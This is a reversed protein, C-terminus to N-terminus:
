RRYQYVLRGGATDTRVLQGSAGLARDLAGSGGRVLVRFTVQAAEAETVDVRRVGQAAALLKGVAAYDGLTEVGTVSVVAAAEPELPVAEPAPETPAPIGPQQAAALTSLLALAALGAIRANRTM